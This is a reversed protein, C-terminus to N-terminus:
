RQEEGNKKMGALVSIDWGLVCVWVVLFLVTFWDFGSWVLLFTEFAVFAIALILIITHTTKRTVQTKEKNKSM